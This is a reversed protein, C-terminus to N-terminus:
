NEENVIWVLLIFILFESFFGFKLILFLESVNKCVSNKLCVFIQSNM